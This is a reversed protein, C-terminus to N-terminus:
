VAGKIHKESYPSVKIIKFDNLEQGSKAQHNKKHTM